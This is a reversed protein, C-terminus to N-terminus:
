FGRVQCCALLLVCFPECACLFLCVGAFHAEIGVCVFIWEALVRFGSGSGEIRV